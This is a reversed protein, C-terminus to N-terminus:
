DKKFAVRCYDWAAVYLLVIDAYVIWQAGAVELYLLVLGVALVSAALKGSPRAPVTTRGQRFLVFSGWLLAANQVVVLFVAWGSLAGNWAFWLLLTFALLKDALPDLFKGLESIENRTRALYGDLVDGVFFLALLLLSFTREGASLAVVVFPILFLRVFTIVNALTMGWSYHASALAPLRGRDYFIRIRTM